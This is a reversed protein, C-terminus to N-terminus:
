EEEVDEEIGWNDYIDESFGCRGDNFYDCDECCQSRRDCDNYNWCNECCTPV